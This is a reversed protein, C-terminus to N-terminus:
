HYQGSGFNCDNEGNLGAENQVGIITALNDGLWTTRFWRGAIVQTVARRPFDGQEYASASGVSLALAMAVAVLGAWLKKREMTNSREEETRRTIRNQMETVQKRKLTHKQM